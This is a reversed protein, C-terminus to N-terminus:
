VSQVMKELPRVQSYIQRIATILVSIHFKTHEHLLIDIKKNFPVFRAIIM